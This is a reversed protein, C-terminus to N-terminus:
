EAKRDTYKRILGAVWDTKVAQVCAAWTAGAPGFRALLEEARLRVARRAPTEAAQRALIADVSPNARRARRMMKRTKRSVRM